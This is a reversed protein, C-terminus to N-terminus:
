PASFGHRRFLARGDASVLWDALRDAADGRTPSNLRVVVYEARYAPDDFREVIRASPALRAEPEYVLAADAEGRRLYALAQRVNEAPLLRPALREWLGRDRLLREAYRGAPATRPNGLALRLRPEGSLAALSSAGSDAPVLLVLPAGAVSRLSAEVAIGRDILARAEDPSAGLFLDGPAGRELQRAILASGGFHFRWGAAPGDGAAADLLPERVSAAALLL